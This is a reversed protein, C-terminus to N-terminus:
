FRFTHSDDEDDAVNTAPLRHNHQNGRVSKPQTSQSRATISRQVVPASAIALRSDSNGKGEPKNTFFPDGFPDKEWEGDRYGSGSDWSCRRKGNTTDCCGRPREVNVTV